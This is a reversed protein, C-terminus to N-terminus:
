PTRGRARRVPRSTGEGKLYELEKQTLNFFDVLGRGDHMLMVKVFPLMETKAKRGSMHLVRGIKLCIGDLLEREARTSSLFRIRSPYSYRVFQKPKTKKSVAVGATMLPVAYRLLGWAQKNNVRQLFVDAKALYEMANAFDERSLQDPANDLVWTFFEAPDLDLNELATVAESYKGSHFVTTLAAFVEKEIDRVGVEIDGSAAIQLDNLASRLDGGAKEAIEKIKDESIKLGETAAVKKLVSAITPKPIRNFKILQCAERLGALKPDWPDNAVMVIPVRTEGLLRTLTQVAGADSRADIGDVEDVLIIKGLAGTLSGLTSASGVVKEIVERTRFDSANLEIIEWGNEKAFAHVLSTKGVGPPGYLLVAKKSPSGKKWGEIWALFETVAEKNGVIQSVKSPRYKEVWLYTM